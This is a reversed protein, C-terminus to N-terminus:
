DSGFDFPDSADPDESEGDGSSGPPPLPRRAHEELAEEARRPVSLEAYLSQKRSAPLALCRVLVDTMLGIPMREGFPLPGRVRTEIAERLLPGLEESQRDDAAEEELLTAEVLRYPRDSALERIRVRSLGAMWILFRGDPLQRHQAIEGLGAVSHVAPAGATRDTEEELINGMVLRGPGDLLDEVMNRYRPEFIHLPVLIGPFLVFNPLPFMPVVVPGSPVDDPAPAEDSDDEPWFEPIEVM